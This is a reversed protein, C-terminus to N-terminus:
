FTGMLSLVVAVLTAMIIVLSATITVGNYIKSNTHEGM